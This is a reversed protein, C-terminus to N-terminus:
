QAIIITLRGVVPVGEPGTVIEMLMKIFILFKIQIKLLILAKFGNGRETRQSYPLFYM